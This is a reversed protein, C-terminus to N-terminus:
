GGSRPDPGGLSAARAATSGGDVPLLVGTLVEAEPGALYAVAHAVDTATALRTLHMAELTARREDSLAADREEHLVHGPVVANCRVGAAAYDVAVSRTLANVAGKTASHAVMGPTGVVGARASVNVIAGHRATVMWPLTARTLWLVSSLNGLVIRDWAADGIEGAPADEHIADSAYANNVLISVGGFRTAVQEVADDCGAPTTLDSAVFVVHRGTPDLATAASRGRDPDRGIVAVAAGRSALVRAIERGLGRTGGSVIAVEGTLSDM